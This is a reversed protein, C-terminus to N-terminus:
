GLGDEPDYRLIKRAPELDWPMGRNRSVAYFIGFTVGEAEIAREIVQVLDAGGIWKGKKWSDTTGGPPRADGSPVWGIRLCIASLSHKESYSRCIREGILKSIGYDNEPLPEEGAGLLGEGKERYGEMTQCSSAFVLRSVKREVCAGCVNLLADINDPILDKWRATTHPNAALHVVTDNEEFLTRWGPDYVSFDAHRVGRIGDPRRDLLVLDYKRILAGSVKNGINGNAGTLIVRKRKGMANEERRSAGAPIRTRDESITRREGGYKVDKGFEPSDDSRRRRREGGISWL